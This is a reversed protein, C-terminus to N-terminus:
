PSDPAFRRAQVIAANPSSTAAPRRRAEREVVQDKDAVRHTGVDSQFRRAMQRIANAPEDPDVLVTLQTPEPAFRFDTRPERWEPGVELSGGLHEDTAHERGGGRGREHLSHHPCRPRASPSRAAPTPLSRSSREGHEGSHERFHTQRHDGDVALVGVAVELRHLAAAHFTMTM